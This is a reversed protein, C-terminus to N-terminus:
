FRRMGTGTNHGERVGVGRNNELAGLWVGDGTETRTSRPTRAGAPRTLQFALRTPHGAAGLDLVGMGTLRNKASTKDFRNRFAVSVVGSFSRIIPLQDGRQNTKAEAAGQHCGHDTARPRGYSRLTSFHKTNPGRQRAGFPRHRADGRSVHAGVRQRAQVNARGVPGTGGWAAPVDRSPSPPWPRLKHRGSSVPPPRGGGNWPGGCCKRRDGTPGSPGPDTGFCV